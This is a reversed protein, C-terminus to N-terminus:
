LTNGYRRSPVDVLPSSAAAADIVEEALDALPLKFCSSVFVIRVFAEGPSMREAGRRLKADEIIPERGVTESLEKARALAEDVGERRRAM